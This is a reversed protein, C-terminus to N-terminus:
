FIIVICPGMSILCLIQVKVLESHRLGSSIGLQLVLSQQSIFSIRKEFSHSFAVIQKTIDTRGDARFLDAGVPRIKM